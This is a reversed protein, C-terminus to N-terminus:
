CKGSSIKEFCKWFPIPKSFSHMPLCAEFLFWPFNYRHPAATSMTRNNTVDPIMELWHLHCCVLPGESSPSSLPSSSWFGSSTASALFASQLLIHTFVKGGLSKMCNHGDHRALIQNGKLYVLSNEPNTDGNRHCICFTKNFGTQFIDYFIFQLTECEMLSSFTYCHFLFKRATSGCEQSLHTVKIHKM